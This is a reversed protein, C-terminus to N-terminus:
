VKPFESGAGFTFEFENGDRAGHNMAAGDDDEEAVTPKPPTGPNSASGSRWGRASRASPQSRATDFRATDPSAPAKEFSAKQVMELNLALTPKTEDRSLLAGYLIHHRTRLDVEFEICPNEWLSVNTKDNYYYENDDDAKYPGSFGDLQAIAKEHVIALHSEIIQESEERTQHRFGQALKIVERYLQDFPHSWSSEDRVHHYFYIRGEADTFESWNPPVPALYAEKAIWIFDADEVFDLELHRVFEKFDDSNEDIDQELPAEELM